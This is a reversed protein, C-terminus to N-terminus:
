STVGKSKKWEEFLENEIGPEYGPSGIIYRYTLAKEAADLRLVLGKLDYLRIRDMGHAEKNRMEQLVNRLDDDTFPRRGEFHDQHEMGCYNCGM